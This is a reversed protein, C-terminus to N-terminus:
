IIINILRNPIFIVKKIEIDQGLYKNLQEDNKILNILDKESLDKKEEIIKRTKGNIQV